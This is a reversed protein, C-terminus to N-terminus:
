AQEVEAHTAAASVCPLPDKTRPFSDNCRSRISGFSGTDGGAIARSTWLAICGEAPAERGGRGAMCRRHARACPQLAHVPREDGSRRGSPEGSHCPLLAATGKRLSMVAAWVGGASRSRGAGPGPWALACAQGCTAAPLPAVCRAAAPAEPLMPQHGPQHSCPLLAPLPPNTGRASRAWALCMSRLKSRFAACAPANRRVQRLLLVYSPM